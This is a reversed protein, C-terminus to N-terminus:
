LKGPKRSTAQTAPDPCRAASKIAVEGSVKTDTARYFGPLRAHFQV